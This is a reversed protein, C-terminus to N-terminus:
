SKAALLNSFQSIAEALAEAALQNGRPRLHGDRSYYVQRLPERLLVPALDLASLGAEAALRLFRPGIQSGGHALDGQEPMAVVLLPFDERAAIAALAALDQGLQSWGEEIRAQEAADLETHRRLLGRLGPGFRHLVANYLASHRSLWKKAAESRPAAPRASENKGPPRAPEAPPTARAAAFDLAGILDNAGSIREGLFFVVVVAAPRGEALRRELDRRYQPASWSPVGLNWVPLPPGRRALEAALQGPLSDELETGVGFVFSDGFIWLAKAGNPEEGRFGRSNIAVRHRYEPAEIAGRWGPALRYDLEEDPENWAGEGDAVWRFSGVEVFQRCVGEALALAVLSAVALTGLRGAWARFRSGRGRSGM